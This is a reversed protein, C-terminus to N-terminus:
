RPPEGLVDERYVVALSAAAAKWRQTTETVFADPLDSGLSLAEKGSITTGLIHSRIEHCFVSLAIFFRKGAPLAAALETRGEKYLWVTIGNMGHTARDHEIYLDLFKEFDDSFVYGSDFDWTELWDLENKTIIRSIYGKFVPIAALIQNPSPSDHEAIRFADPFMRRRIGRPIFDLNEIHDWYRVVVRFKSGDPRQHYYPGQALKDQITTHPNATTLIIYTHIPNEYADTKKIDKCADSWTFSTDERLKCQGVIGIPSGQPILDIGFQSQGQSGYSKYVVDRNLQHKIAYRLYHCCIEEWDKWNTVKLGKM